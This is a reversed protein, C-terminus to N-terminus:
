HSIEKAPAGVVISYAEVNKTVVSNAGVIAGKGIRVNPLIVVGDGIWVNEEIFVPGKSVLPRSRPPLASDIHETSGHFHDTIHVKSGILCGSSITVKTLAAIHTWNSVSVNDGIIIRSNKNIAHLWLGQGSHFRGLFDICDMNYIETGRWDLHIKANTLFSYISNFVKNRIRNPLLIARSFFSLMHTRNM